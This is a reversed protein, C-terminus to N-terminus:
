SSSKSKTRSVKNFLAHLKMLELVNMVMTFSNIIAMCFSFAAILAFKEGTFFKTALLLFLAGAEVAVVYAIAHVYVQAAAIEDLWSFFESEAKSFLTWLFGLAAAFSTACYLTAFDFAFQHVLGAMASVGISACGFVVLLIALIIEVAYAFFIKVKRNNM